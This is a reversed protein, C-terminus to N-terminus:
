AFILGDHNLDQHFSNELVQLSMDSGAVYGTANSTYNGNGDLNWVVYQDAAGNKFAVEYGSATQEAGIPNWVQGDVLVAGQYKLSPGAGGADRLFFQDGVHDLHTVGFSEITTTVPGVQGNGNLDQHFTNELFQLAMDSGPLVGTASSVYNGNGDLNWVTYQDAAGNKFVVQYGSATQEAGIPNWAGFQGDVLAAGQYKLMPGAGGSDRLFYQNAVEDLHTVRFSEITTTVPGIQGNGNLDQHFSNELVQLSMDSGAVYGTANSTYNGNGDLNWVVYQDAAGNKFAVEYGSATQEAGIPNWVQGDVLVAGQYKLSPGAGGADRLFFQDGVHDLHTVGFSEITTTVPGVQGNGNLDQHFTNELFQLAMDSGPLVGTASSVYNGNGDLNWVTYQDAAGNKFVVQYGSATQEAGIPNWAGFQGDVLAAGQYKLMPGAGGSDRLFYQNAVEDLRTVGFSEITTTTTPTQVDSFVLNQINTLTDAGDPGTVNIVDGNVTIAYNARLGAFVATNFGSGGNLTDNGLGGNLTDDGAGGDLNDNGGGGSLTDNGAGGILIDEGGGTVINDNGSGTTITFNETALFDVLNTTTDAIHGSYGALLNGSTVGGIVSTTLASYDVILRDNGAESNVNDSGGRVTVSDDGSGAVITDAGTGSLIVDAGSGSAIVNTGNGANIFNGGNGATITDADNGGTISNVGQGATITNAGNGAKIINSGDGVTLTDAGSGTLVTFSEFTGNTITVTRAGGGAESFNSTSNGTVAGTALHYDVILRDIGLGGNVADAGGAVTVVNNGANGVIGNGDSADLVDFPATGTLFVTPIGTGLQLVIGTSTADGSITMGNHTITATEDSYGAELLITDGATAELMADSISMFLSNPGVNLIAM